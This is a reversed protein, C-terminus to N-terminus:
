LVVLGYLHKKFLKKVGLYILLIKVFSGSWILTRLGLYTEIIDMDNTDVQCNRYVKILWKRTKSWGDLGDFSNGEGVIPVLAMNSHGNPM